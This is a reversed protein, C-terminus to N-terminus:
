LHQCVFSLPFHCDFDAWVGDWHAVCVEEEVPQPTTGEFWNIYDLPSNDIWTYKSNMGQNKSLGIWWAGSNEPYLEDLVSQIPGEVTSSHVTLLHTGKAKCFQAAEDFTMQTSVIIYSGFNSYIVPDETPTVETTSVYPPPTPPNSPLAGQGKPLTECIFAGMSKPQSKSFCDVYETEGTIFTYLGCKGEGFGHWYRSIDDGNSEIEYWLIDRMLEDYEPDQTMSIQGGILSCEKNAAEYGGLVAHTSYCRTNDDSLSQFDYPCDVDDHKPTTTTSTKPSPTAPPTPPDSPLTGEGEPLTECLFAALPAGAGHLCDVYSTLGTKIDYVGCKGDQFGHWYSTIPKRTCKIKDVLIEKMKEADEPDQTMSIQGGIQNCLVNATEYAQVLPYASYCRKGDASLTQYDYPCSVVGPAKTTTTSAPAKTSQPAPTPPDLPVSGAGFPKAECIYSSLPVGYKSRELCDAYM